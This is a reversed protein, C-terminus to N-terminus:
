MQFPVINQASSEVVYLQLKKRSHAVRKAKIDVRKVDILTTNANIVM